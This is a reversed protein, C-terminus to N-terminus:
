QSDWGSRPLQHIDHVTVDVETLTLETHTTLRRAIATRLRDVIDPINQGWMVSVDISVTVPAGPTVIDGDLRCRGIIVGEVDKEASRILGRVAGETVALDATPDDHRIPIRRGAQADFAIAELIRGVWSEDPRPVDQADRELLSRSLARLREMAELALQCGASNDISPDPPVRGSDLYASLEDITHGNLEEANLSLPHHAQGVSDNDTM